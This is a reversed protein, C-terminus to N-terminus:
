RMPPPSTPEEDPEYTCSTKETEWVTVRRLTGGAAELPARLLDYCTKAIHEVSPNLDRFEETDLNLNTHDFRQIVTEDVIRELEPLNIAPPQGSSPLPVDVAVELRYNHGHGHRNNCRGFIRRNETESFEPCSLRHAAAFDFQQSLQVHDPRTTAMTLRYYPTLRWGVSSVSHQLVPQLAALVETLMHGPFTAPQHRFARQIIPLAAERVAADIASINMMYGTRADVAGRCRVELETYVGLGRLSPWGAFTNHRGGSQDADRSEEALGISFRVTRSLEYM